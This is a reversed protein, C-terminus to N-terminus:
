TILGLTDNNHQIEIKAKRFLIDDVLSNYPYLKMLGDLVAMAADGKNQFFLLDAQAFMTLPVATTDMNLNNGILLSLDMADNATLKSTSAKLADLQSKAWRFNGMYYALKAKKLKADDGLSNTKNDEIVQSYILTAEWPDNAYVYIDGM